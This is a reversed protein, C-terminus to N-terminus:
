KRVAEWSADIVQEILGDTLELSGIAHRQALSTAVDLTFASIVQAPLDKIIMEKQAAQFVVLLPAYYQSTEADM